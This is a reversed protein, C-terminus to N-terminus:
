LDSTTCYQPRNWQETGTTSGTCNSNTYHTVTCVIRGSGEDINCFKGNWDTCDEWSLSGSYDDGNGNCGSSNPYCGTRTVCKANSQDGGFINQMESESLTLPVKEIPGAFAYFAGLGLTVLSIYIAWFKRTKM